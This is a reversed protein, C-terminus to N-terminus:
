SSPSVKMKKVILCAYIILIILSIGLLVFTAIVLGLQTPNNLDVSDRSNGVGDIQLLCPSTLLYNNPNVNVATSDFEINVENNGKRIFFYGDFGFSTGWSNKCIWYKIGQNTRGWGVVVVAHAGLMEVRVQRGNVIIFDQKDYIQGLAPYYYFDSFITMGTIIPGHQYISLMMNYENQQQINSPLVLEVGPFGNEVGLCLDVAQEAKYVCLQNRNQTSLPAVERSRYPFAQESPLGKQVLYNCTAALTGGDCGELAFYFSDLLINQNILQQASPTPPNLTSNVYDRGSSVMDQPSLVIKVQGQTAISIRDSLMCAGAFAYCSGCDGQDRVPTILQNGNADLQNRWDFSEPLVVNSSVVNSAQNLNVHRRRTQPVILRNPRGKHCQNSKLSINKNCLSLM